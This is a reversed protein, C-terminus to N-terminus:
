LITIAYPSVGEVYTKRQQDKGLYTSRIILYYQNGTVLGAPAFFELKKPYNTYIDDGAVPMWESQDPDYSGTSSDYPAFWVGNDEMYSGDDNEALKMKAGTVRIASSAYCQWELHFRLDYFLQIQPASDSIMFSNASVKALAEKAATSPTFALSLSPLDTVQPNDRTVTGTPKIYMTGLEMIDVSRGQQLLELTKAKVLELAHIIVYPDISPYGAAIESVIGNVSVTDRPVRVVYNEENFANNSLKVSVYSSVQEEEFM